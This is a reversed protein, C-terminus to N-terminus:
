LRAARGRQRWERGGRGRNQQVYCGAYCRAPRMEALKVLLDQQAQLLQIPSGM